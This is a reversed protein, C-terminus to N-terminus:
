SILLFVGSRRHREPNKLWAELNAFIYFTTYFRGTVEIGM